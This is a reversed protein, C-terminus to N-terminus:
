RPARRAPAYSLAVGLANAPPGDLVTGGAGGAEYAVSLGIQSTVAVDAGVAGRGYWTNSGSRGLAAGRRWYQAQPTVHVAVPRGAVLRRYGLGAGAPVVTLAGGLRLDGNKIVSTSDGGQVRGFGVFPAVGITGTEGFRLMFALRGAYTTRAADFMTARARGAGLTAVLRRGPGPRHAAVALGVVRVGEAASGGDLAVAFPRGAFPSQAAPLGLLQARAAGPALTAAAAAAALASRLVPM